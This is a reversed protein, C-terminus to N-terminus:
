GTNARNRNNSPTPDRASYGAKPHGARSGEARQLSRPGEPHRLPTACKPRPTVPPCLTSERHMCHVFRADDLVFGSKLRLSTERASNGATTTIRALDRPGSSLVRAKPIVCRPHPAFASQARYSRQLPTIERHICDVFGADPFPKCTRLFGWGEAESLAPKRACLARPFHPGAFDGSRAFFALFPAGEGAGTV